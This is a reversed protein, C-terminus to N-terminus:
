CDLVDQIFSMRRLDLNDLFLAALPKQHLLNLRCFLIIGYDSHVAFSTM